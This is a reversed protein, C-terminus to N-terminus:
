KCARKGFPKPFNSFPLQPTDVNLGVKTWDISGFDGLGLRADIKSV